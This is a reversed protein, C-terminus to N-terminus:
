PPSRAVGLGVGATPIRRTMRATLLLGAFGAMTGGIAYVAILLRRAFLGCLQLAERNGGLAFIYTGLAPTTSCCISSPM